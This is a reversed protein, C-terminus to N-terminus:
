DALPGSGVVEASCRNRRSGPGERVRRLLPEPSDLMPNRVRQLRKVKKSRNGAPLAALPTLRTTAVSVLEAMM